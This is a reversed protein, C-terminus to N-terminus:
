TGAYAVLVSGFLPMAGAPPVVEEGGFGAPASHNFVAYSTGCDTRAIGRGQDNGGGGFASAWEVTGDSELRVIFADRDGFPMLQMGDVEFPAAGFDGIVAIQGSSGVTVDNIVDDGPGGFSRAWEVAGRADLKILFVDRGGQNQCAGLCTTPPTPFEGDYTGALILGGALPVAAATVEENGAAGIWQPMSMAMGFNGYPLVFADRGGGPGNDAWGVALIDTGRHHVSVVRQQGGAPIVPVNFVVAASGDVAFLYADEGNGATSPAAPGMNITVGPSQMTGGGAYVGAGSSPKATLVNASSEVAYIWDITRADTLRGVIGNNTTATPLDTGGFNAAGSYIGAILMQDNADLTLRSAYADGAGGDAWTWAVDGAESVSALYLDVGDPAPLDLGTPYTANYSGFVIASGNSDAEVDNVFGGGLPVQWLLTGPEADPCGGGTDTTTMGDASTDTATGDPGSPSTSSDLSTAATTGPAVITGRVIATTSSASGSSSESVGGDDSSESFCAATLVVGALGARELKSWAM